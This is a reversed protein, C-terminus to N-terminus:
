RFASLSSSRRKAASNVATVARSEISSNVAQLAAEVRALQAPDAGTANINYTPSVVTNSTSGASAGSLIKQTQESNYIRSAGTAELEPGDEGVLRLGGPHDGGGAYGAVSVTNASSVDSFSISSGSSSTTSSTGFLGGVLSSIGSQLASFIYMQAIIDAIKLGFNELADGADDIDTIMSSFTSGVAQGMDQAIDNGTNLDSNLTKQASAAARSYTEQNIAGARLLENLRELTDNYKEQPTRMSETLSAGEQELAVKQAIQEKLTQQQTILSTIQQGETSSQSIKLARIQNDAEMATTVNQVAEADQQHAAALSELQEVERQLNAITEATKDTKPTTTVPQRIPDTTGSSTSSSQSKIKAQEVYVADLQKLLDDLQSNYSDLDNDTFIPSQRWENLQDIQDRLDAAEDALKEAETGLVSPFTKRIESLSVSLGWMATSAAKVLPTLELLTAMFNRKLADSATNFADKAEDAKEIVSADIVYGSQEAQDTLAKLADGGQELMQVFKEGAQGGFLEDSIRIQSAKDMTKLKDAIETLLAPTNSLKDNLETQTYGLRQFAESASGSGTVAFEDARLALEKLGDAVDDTSIGFQKAAYELKQFDEVGVGALEASDKIESVQEAAEKAAVGLGIVAGVSASVALGTPGLASLVSGFSGVSSSLTGIEGRLEGAVADVALLGKSAPTSAADLKKLAKQGESGVAVLGKRVVESDKLSLKIAVSKTTSGAM